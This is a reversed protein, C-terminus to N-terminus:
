PSRDLAVWDSRVDIAPQPAPGTGFTVEAGPDVVVITPVVTTDPGGEAKTFVYSVKEGSAHVLRRRWRGWTITVLRPAEDEATISIWVDGTVEPPFSHEYAAPPPSAADQGRVLVVIATVLMGGAVGVLFGAWWRRRPPRSRGGPVDTM